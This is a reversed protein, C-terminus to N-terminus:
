TMRLTHFSERMKQALDNKKTERLIQEKGKMKKGIELYIDKAVESEM